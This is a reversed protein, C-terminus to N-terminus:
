KDLGLWINSLEVGKDINMLTGPKRGIRQIALAELVKRKTTQHEKGIVRAQWHIAHTTGIVNEAVASEEGAGKRLNEKHEKVRQRAVSLCNSGYGVYGSQCSIFSNQTWKVHLNNCLCLLSLPLDHVFCFVCRWSIDVLPQKYSRSCLNSPFRYRLFTLFMQFRSVHRELVSSFKIVQDFNAAM